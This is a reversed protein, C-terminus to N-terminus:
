PPTGARVGAKVILFGIPIAILGGLIAFLVGFGVAYGHVASQQDPVGILRAAAAFSGAAVIAVAWLLSWGFAFMGSGSINQSRGRARGIRFLVYIGGVVVVLLFVPRAVLAITYAAGPSATATIGITDAPLGSFTGRLTDGTRVLAPAIAVEWGVPVHAIVDLTGFSGWDRAPALVYGLQWLITPGGHSRTLEARAHYTVALTHRGPPIELTFTYAMAEDAGYAIPADGDLSPTTVPARWTAPLAAVEEPTAFAGRATVGDLQVDVEGGGKSAGSVFVLPTTVASGRNDLHYTATVLVGGGEALPRLDFTLEEREIAIMRLGGPEALPTGPFNRQAVNAHAPAAFALVLALLFRPM